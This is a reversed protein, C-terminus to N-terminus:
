AKVLEGDRVWGHWPREPNRDDISPMVTLRPADGTVDWYPGLKSTETRLAARDNTCWWTGNPLFIVWAPPRGEYDRWPARIMAGPPGDWAGSGWAFRAGSGEFWSIENVQWEDSPTFSHGCECTRPWRPDDHAILDDPTYRTGDPRRSHDPANEDIVTTADHRHASSDGYCFRRLTLRCTGTPEAVWLPINM